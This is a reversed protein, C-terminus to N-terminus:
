VYRQYSSGRSTNTGLPTDRTNEEQDHVHHNSFYKVCAVIFVILVALLAACIGIIAAIQEALTLTAWGRVPDDSYCAYVQCDIDAILSDIESQTIEARLDAALNEAKAPIVYVTATTQHRSGCIAQICLDATCFQVKVQVRDSYKNFNLYTTENDEYANAIEDAFDDFSKDSSACGVGLLNGKKSVLLKGEIRWYLMCFYGTQVTWSTMGEIYQKGDKQHVNFGETYGPRIFLPLKSTQGQFINYQANSLPWKSYNSIESVLNAHFEAKVSDYIDFAASVSEGVTLGADLIGRKTRKEVVLIDYFTFCHTTTM